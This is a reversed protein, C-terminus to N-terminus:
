SNKNRNNTPDALPLAAISLEIDVAICFELLIEKIFIMENGSCFTFVVMTAVLVSPIPLFLLLTMHASYPYKLCCAQSKWRLLFFM